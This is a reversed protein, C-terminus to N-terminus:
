LGYVGCCLACVCPFKSFLEFDDFVNCKGRFSSYKHYQLSKRDIRTEGFYISNENTQYPGKDKKSLELEKDGGQFKYEFVRDSEFFYGITDGYVKCIVGKGDIEGALLLGPFLVFFLIKFM